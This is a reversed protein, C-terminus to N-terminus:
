FEKGKGEADLKRLIEDLEHETPEDGLAQLCAKFEIRSLAGNKDKDFHQFVEKFENLQEPTIDSNKKALIENTL